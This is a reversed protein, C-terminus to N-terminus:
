ICSEPDVPLTTPEVVSLLALATQCNQIVFLRPLLFCLPSRTIAGVKM